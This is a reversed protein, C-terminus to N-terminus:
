CITFVLYKMATLSRVLMRKDFITKRFDHQQPRLIRYLRQGESHYEENMERETETERERCNARSSEATGTREGHM